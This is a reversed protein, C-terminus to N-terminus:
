RLTNDATTKKLVQYDFMYEPFDRFNRVKISELPPPTRVAIAIFIAIKQFV